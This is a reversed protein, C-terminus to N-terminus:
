RKFIEKRHFPVPYHKQCSTTSGPNLEIRIRATPHHGLKGNFVSRYKSLLHYLLQKQDQNLYHQEDIVQKPTVSQYKIDLIEDTFLDYDEYEM